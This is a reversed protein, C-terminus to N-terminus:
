DNSVELSSDSTNAKSHINHSISYYAVVYM